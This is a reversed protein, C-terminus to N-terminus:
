IIYMYTCQVLPKVIIIQFYKKLNIFLINNVNSQFLVFVQTVAKKNSLFCILVFYKTHYCLVVVKIKKKSSQFMIIGYLAIIFAYSHILLM